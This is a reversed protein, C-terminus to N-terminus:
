GLRERLVAIAADRDAPDKQFSADLGAILSLYRLAFDSRRYGYIKALTAAESGSLRVAGADDLLPRLAAVAVEGLELLALAAPGDYSGDPDLYGFDNLQRHEALTAALVQARVAAPIDEYVDPAARALLMLAHFASRQPHAQIWSAIARADGADLQGRLYDESEALLLGGDSAAALRSLLEDTM